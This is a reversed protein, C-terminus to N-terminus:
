NKEFATTEGNFTFSIGPCEYGYEGGFCMNEDYVISGNVTELDFGEVEGFTIETIALSGDESVTYNFVVEKEGFVFSWTRPNYIQYTLVGTGDEALTFFWRGVMSDNEDRVIYRYEGAVDGYPNVEM